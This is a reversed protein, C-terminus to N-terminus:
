GNADDSWRNRGSPVKDATRNRSGAKEVDIETM